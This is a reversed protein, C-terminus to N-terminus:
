LNLNNSDEGVKSQLLSNKQEMYGFNFSKIRRDTKNSTTYKEILHLLLLKMEYQAVGELIDHMIDVSINECTNFYQLSNLICSHKVGMVYTLRPNTQMKQFHEAHLTCIRMVIKPSDDDFETTFDEKEALCFYCCHRASISEVFVFLSHPGHNDGTVQVITGYVPQDYLPVSIGDKELIKIDQVLPKLIKSFGYIEM